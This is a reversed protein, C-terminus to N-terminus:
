WTAPPDSAPFSEWAVEDVIDSKDVTHGPKTQSTGVDDGIATNQEYRCATTVGVTKYLICYGALGRYFLYGGVLIYAFSGYTSRWLGQALLGLGVGISILREVGNINTQSNDSFRQIMAQLNPEIHINKELNRFM